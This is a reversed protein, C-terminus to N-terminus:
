SLFKIFSNVEFSNLNIPLKVNANKKSETSKYRLSFVNSFVKSKKVLM